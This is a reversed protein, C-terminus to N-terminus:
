SSFLVTAYFFFWSTNTFCWHEGFRGNKQFSHGQYKVKVSSTSKPVLSLAKGCPIHIHFIFAGDGVM